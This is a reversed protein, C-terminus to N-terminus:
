ICGVKVLIFPRFCSTHITPSLDGIASMLGSKQRVFPALKHLRRNIGVHDAERPRRSDSRASSLQM